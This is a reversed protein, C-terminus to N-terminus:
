PLHRKIGFPQSFHEGGARREYKHDGKAEIKAAYKLTPGINGFDVVVNGFVNQLAANAIAIRFGFTSFGNESNVSGAHLLELFAAAGREM